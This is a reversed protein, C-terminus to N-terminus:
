MYILLSSTNSHVTRDRRHSNTAARVSAITERTRSCSIRHGVTISVAFSRDVNFDISIDREHQRAPPPASNTNRHVTRDWRNSGTAAGATNYFGFNVQSKQQLINSTRNNYFSRFDQSISLFLQHHYFYSDSIKPNMEIVCVHRTLTEFSRRSM